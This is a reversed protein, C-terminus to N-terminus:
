HVKGKITNLVMQPIRDSFLFRFIKGILPNGFLLLIGVTTIIVSLFSSLLQPLKGDIIMIAVAHLIYVPLTNQGLATLLPIRKQLLPRLTYVFFVIWILSISMVTLRSLMSRVGSAYPSSGYFVTNPFNCLYIAVIAACLLGALIGTRLAKHRSSFVAPRNATHKRFYYGLLFWPQFTFFRSLTMYKSCTEDFGVALALVVTCVFATIQKTRSATDYAPILLQYFICAVLFWLHWYPTTFQYPTSSGLLRQATIYLVQFVLFPCLWSFIIKKINYRAFYGSIFIFVPVHFSYITQYLLRLGPFPTCIELLHGLVVCTILITRINDFSYDRSATKHVPATRLQEATNM